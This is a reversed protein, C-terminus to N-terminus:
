EMIANDYPNGKRSMSQRCGYRLLLAGFRQTTYQSGRDTHVILGKAPRERGIAQNFAPM